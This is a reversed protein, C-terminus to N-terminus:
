APPEVIPLMRVRGAAPDVPCTYRFHKRTGDKRTFHGKGSV